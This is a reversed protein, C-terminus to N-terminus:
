GTRDALRAPAGIAALEEPGPWVGYLAEYSAPDYPDLGHQECTAEYDEEEEGFLEDNEFGAGSEQAKMTGNSRSQRRPRGHDLWSSGSDVETIREKFEKDWGALTEPIVPSEKAENWAVIVECPIRLRYRKGGPFEHHFDTRCYFHGDQTLIMMVAFSWSGFSQQMTEEDTASPRNMGSPHTHIWCSVQWPQIGNQEYLAAQKDAWWEMDLDVHAVSVEQKVLIIKTIRLEKSEASLVGMCSVENPTRHCLWQLHWYARPTMTIQM